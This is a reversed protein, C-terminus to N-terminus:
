MMPGSAQCIHLHEEREGEKEKWGGELRWFMELLVVFRFVILENGM